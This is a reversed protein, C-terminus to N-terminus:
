MEDMEGGTIGIEKIYSKFGSYERTLGYTGLYINNYAKNTEPTFPFNARSVLLGNVYLEAYNSNQVLAITNWKNIKFNESTFTYNRFQVDYMQQLNSITLYFM